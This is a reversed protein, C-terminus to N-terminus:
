GMMVEMEDKYEEMYNERLRKVFSMAIPTAKELADVFSDPYYEKQELVSSLVLMRCNSLVFDAKQKEVVISGELITSLYHWLREVLAQQDQKNDILSALTGHFNEKDESLDQIDDVLQLAYGFDNCFQKEKENLTGNILYGDALVSAGGKYISIEKIKDIDQSHQQQVSQMQGQQILYLSEYVDPYQNRDYVAEIEEILKSIPVCLPHYYATKKGHLRHLFWDNFQMKDEKTISTDDLLNDSYPYLMSYAFIARHYVIDRQFLIELMWVIWVNRLAQFIDEKTLADDFAMADKHFQDSLRYFKDKEEDEMWSLDLMEEILSADKINEKYKAEQLKKLIRAENEKRVSNPVERLEIPQALCHEWGM